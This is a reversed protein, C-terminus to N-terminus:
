LLDLTIGEEIESLRREREQEYYLDGYVCYFERMYLSPNGEQSLFGLNFMVEVIQDGGLSRILNVVFNCFKVLGIHHYRQIFFIILSWM